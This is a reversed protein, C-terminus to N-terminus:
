KLMWLLVAAGLLQYVARPATAILFLERQLGAVGLSIYVLTQILFDVLAMMMWLIYALCFSDAYRCRYLYRTVWSIWFILVIMFAKSFLVWNIINNCTNMGAILVMSATCTIRLKREDVRLDWITGALRLTVWVKVATLLFECCFYFGRVM